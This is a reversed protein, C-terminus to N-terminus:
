DVALLAYKKGSFVWVNRTSMQNVQFPHVASNVETIKFTSGGPNRGNKQVQSGSTPIQVCSDLLQSKFAPVRFNPNSRLFGSTPIQVHFGQLPSKFTAVRFNPNSPLVGSTPIQVHFSQLQSKFTPVRFNPYSRPVGLTSIQVHSGQLQSKFVPVRFFRSDKFRTQIQSGQLKFYGYIM